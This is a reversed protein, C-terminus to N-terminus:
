IEKEKKIRKERKWGRVFFETVTVMVPRWKFELDPGKGERYAQRGKSGAKWLWGKMKHWRTALLTEFLM